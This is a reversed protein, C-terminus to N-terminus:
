KCAEGSVSLPLFPLLPLEGTDSCRLGLYFIVCGMGEMFAITSEMVSATSGAM